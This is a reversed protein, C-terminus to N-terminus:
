RQMEVVWIGRLDGEAFGTAKDDPYKQRIAALTEPLVQSEPTGHCQLCMAEALIPYYATVRDGSETLRPKLPMGQEQLSRCEQIYALEAANAANQPNRNRDSVRKLSAGLAVAMSDTLPYARESCFAVAGAAGQTQIAQVLNKGLVAKTELAFQKGQELYDEPTREAVPQTTEGTTDGEGKCSAAAWTILAVCAIAFLSKQM